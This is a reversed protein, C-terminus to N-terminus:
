TLFNSICVSNVNGGRIFKGNQYLYEGRILEYERMNSPHYESNEAILVELDFGQEEGINTLENILDKITM